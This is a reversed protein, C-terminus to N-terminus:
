RRVAILTPRSPQAWNPWTAMGSYRQPIKRASRSGPRVTPNPSCLPSGTHALTGPSYRASSCRSITIWPSVSGAETSCCRLRPAVAGLRYSRRLRNWTFTSSPRCRHAM